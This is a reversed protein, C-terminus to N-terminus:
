PPNPASKLTSKCYFFHKQTFTQGRFLLHPNTETESLHLPNMQRTQLLCFVHIFRQLFPVATQMSSWSGFQKIINASGLLTLGREVDFTKVLTTAQSLSMSVGERRCKTAKPPAGPPQPAVCWGAFTNQLVPDSALMGIQGPLAEQRREQCQFSEEGNTPM